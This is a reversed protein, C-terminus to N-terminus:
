AGEPEGPVRRVDLFSISIMMLKYRPMESYINTKTEKKRFSGLIESYRVCLLNHINRASDIFLAVKVILSLGTFRPIAQGYLCLFSCPKAPFSDRARQAM